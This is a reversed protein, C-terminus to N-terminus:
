QTLVKVCGRNWETVVVKGFPKDDTVYIGRHSSVDDEISDIRAIFKGQPDFKQVRNNHYDCVYVCGDTDAAVGQPSNLEGEKTGRGGFVNLFRCNNDFIQIRNNRLDSVIINGTNGIAIDWPGNFQSDGTGSSGFSTMYVGLQSYIRVCHSGNDVVYVNGNIPSIALGMPYQLEKSGFVRILKGNVDCVVVKKYSTTFIYGDDSIASYRPSFPEAFNTFEILNLHNGDLTFIQLRNNGTDCVLANRNRTMIVGYPNRLQEVASGKGGFKRLLGKKPIVNIKVPSGFVHTKYATISLEHEGIMKTTYRVSLSTNKNDKVEVDETKMDPTKIEARLSQKQTYANGKKTTVTININDGVRTMDPVHGIVYTPKCQLAGLVQIMSSNDSPIFQIDDDDVPTQKTELTQIETLLSTVGNKASMMHVPNGYHMLNNTYERAYKISNESSELEKIQVRLNVERNKYEDKLEDMLQKSANRIKRTIEEITKETHIELRKKEQRYRTELSDVMRQITDKSDHVENEKVKLQEANAVLEDKYEAAADKLYRQKHDRHDIVTCELCIAVECSDCYFKVASDTHKDCYTASHVSSPDKVILSQYSELSTIRHSQTLPMRLHARACADCIDLACDLCRQNAHSKECVCQKPEQSGVDRNKFAESIENIFYNNPLDSVEIDHKRRCLPCHIPQGTKEVLKILCHECFSHQCPLVKANSYRESCVGCSLFTEDIEDLFKDSPAATAM